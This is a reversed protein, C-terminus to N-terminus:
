STALLWEVLVLASVLSPYRCSVGSAISVPLNRSVRPDTGHISSQWNAALAGSHLASISIARARTSKKLASGTKHTSAFPDLACSRTPARISTTARLRAVDYSRPPVHLKSHTPKRHLRSPRPANTCPRGLPKLRLQVALAWTGFDVRCPPQRRPTASGRSAIQLRRSAAWELTNVLCSPQRALAPGHCSRARTLRRAQRM